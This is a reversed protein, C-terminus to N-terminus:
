IGEIIKGIDFLRNEKFHPALIQLGVPLQKGGREVFGSPVSMAPIGVLNASVTFIDSLYMQLPDDTKEGIKFAPTPSVPMIMADYESFVKKFSGKLANKVDLAKKYYADYYGSSLVYTGLMIRRRVEKGFGEGRTEFFDKINDGTEKKFGYRVGDFRALNSSVEAPMIIYYLALSNDLYSITVEDVQFGLRKLSEIRSYFNELVDADVGDKPFAPYAIKKIKESIIKPSEKSTSDKKDKGKIVNFIIEVDEVKKGVPGIQDLSSAMAILGYRSVAGYTPKLGVVGCFSAPQRISGGTDSGLAGLTMGSAVSVVSGGSSGGSVRTEDYPNKAPGVYSTETTSGMAFEDMNTRGIFIAGEEEMKKTVTADYVASYNKLINSGASCTQGKILINDKVSIPVGALYLEEGVDIRKQVKKIQDDCDFIEIFANLKKNKEKTDQLFPFIADKISLKKKNIKETYEKITM